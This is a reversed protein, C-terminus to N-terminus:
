AMSRSASALKTRLTTSTWTAVGCGLFDKDQTWIAADLSLALAVTHWDDADRPMRRSAEQAYAGYQEVEVIYPNERAAAAALALLDNLRQETLGKTEAIRNVRKALEHLAEEMAKEAIFLELREDAILARGQVRLLESVLINADVALRM